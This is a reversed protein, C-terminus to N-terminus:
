VSELPSVHVETKPSRAGLSDGVSVRDLESFVWEGAEQTAGQGRLFAEVLHNKGTPCFSFSLATAGSQRSVDLLRSLVQEEVGRGLARCSLVFTNIRFNNSIREGVVFGIIGYDGFRDNARILLALGETRALVARLDPISRKLGNLNFQNTRETLQAARSLNDDRLPLLEIRLELQQLFERLSACERNLRSREANQRYFGGRQRDEATQPRLDLEWVGELFTGVLAEEAPLHLTLVQPCLSRVAACEFADDDIFVFSDLGLSLEAALAWLNEAKASWNIKWATFDSKRLVMGPHREFVDLAAREDNKSCLCLLFGHAALRRLSNQFSLRGPGIVVTDPGDEGCLGSWLTNDCDTVIVKRPATVNRYLWRAVVTGIRAFCVRSYPVQWEADAYDDFQNEQEGPPYLEQLRRNSVVEIGPLNQLIELLTQEAFINDPDAFQRPTPPCLVVLLPPGGSEAAVRAAATFESVKRRLVVGSESGASRAWRELQLLIVGYDCEGRLLGCPNLLEHIVQDHPSIRVTAFIRLERFWFELSEGMPQATFNAILGIRPGQEGTPQSTTSPASTTM